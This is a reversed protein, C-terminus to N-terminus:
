IEYDNEKLWSILFIRFLDGQLKHSSYIKTNKGDQKVTMPNKLRLERPPNRRFKAPIYRMVDIDSITYVDIEQNLSGLKGERLECFIEAGTKNIKFSNLNHDLFISYYEKEKLFKEVEKISKPIDISSIGSFLKQYYDEIVLIKRNKQNNMIM